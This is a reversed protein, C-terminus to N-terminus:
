ADRKWESSGFGTMHGKVEFIDKIAFTLGSLSHRAAPPPPQPFPLLEFREVFAGYDERNLIKERRRKRRQTEALVLIGAVGIGIVIWVKPNSVQIKFAKSNSM